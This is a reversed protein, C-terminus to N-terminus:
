IKIMEPIKGVFKLVIGVVMFVFIVPILAFIIGTAASMASGLDVTTTETQAVLVTLAIPSLKAIRLLRVYKAIHRPKAFLYKRKTFQFVKGMGEFLNGVLRFMLMLVMLTVILPLLATLLGVIPTLDITSSTQAVLAVLTAVATLKKSRSRFV